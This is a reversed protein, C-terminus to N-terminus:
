SKVQAIRNPLLDALTKLKWHSRWLKWQGFLWTGLAAAAILGNQVTHDSFWGKDVGFGAIFIVVVRATSWFSAWWATRDVLIPKDPATDTM